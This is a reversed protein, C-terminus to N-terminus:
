RFVDEFKILQWCGASMEFTYTLTGGSGPRTFQVFRAGSGKKIRPKLPIAAQKARAPFLADAYQPDAPSFITHFVTKPEPQVSRDTRVTSLPFRTNSRQFEPSMEFQALFTDFDKACNQAHAIPMALLLATCVSLLRM